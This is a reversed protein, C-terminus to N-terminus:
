NYFLKNLSKVVTNMEKTNIKEIPQIIKIRYLMFYCVKKKELFQVFSLIVHGIENLISYYKVNFLYKLWTFQYNDIVDIRTKRNFSKWHQLCQNDIFRQNIKFIHTSLVIDM